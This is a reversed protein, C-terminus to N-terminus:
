FYGLAPHFRLLNTNLPLHSRAQMQNYIRLNQAVAETANNGAVAAMSRPLVYYYGFAMPVFVIKRGNVALHQWMEHDELARYSQEYGGVDIFQCRDVLAFADIYNFQFLKFQISENSLLNMACRSTPTRVLLNGYV